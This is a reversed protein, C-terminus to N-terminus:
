TVIGSHRLLPEIDPKRGRFDVFLEMADRSGGMELIAHLFRDGTTRDFIGNEEFMSFADASLVEAWKYSYYGASYGGAFIHSFSHQFRNFEPTPVVSIESRIQDLLQQIENHNTSDELMHLRFDFLSFELQRLMQLGSQFNKAAQMKEFLEDNIAEGTEFHGSFLDLAEREWCWNEMFQSPLEVADWAVGNIGSVGAVDIKTLMHHLGHGFEHFLTTVESHTLLSPQDGVPPTFNCTLYAIPNQLGDSTTKKIQCEDMWAGGRKQPRAYIDLYFSGRLENNQDLIEFFLVDDHWVDVGKRENIKLGYLREVVKFLGSIVKAAPFYPRVMEQSINYRHQRLKEAYYSMDWAHLEDVDFQDKAFDQLEQLEKEAFPKSRKALDNLFSLVEDPSDAMKTALSYESYNKFGLLTAMEQRLTLLKEMNESNDWKGEKDNANQDSARTVFAQYMEHRLDANDAYTMVPMYSPFQLNLAWGDLKEHEAIQKALGKTSEPLGSLLSEDTIHKKWANTSDLLNEEFKTAYKSLQLRLEKFRDQDKQDLEIGSLRFDRLANEIVKQQAQNLLAFDASDAISKCAQYYDENQSLETSYASLKPLCANYAARLQDNNATANMHKIPSWARSLKEDLDELPEITTEWSPKNQDSLIEKVRRKNEALIQDIAPEIHEPKIKSFAPLETKELLPNTM